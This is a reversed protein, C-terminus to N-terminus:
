LLYARYQTYREVTEFRKEEDKKPFFAAEPTKELMLVSAPSAIISAVTQEPLFGNSPSLEKSFSPCRAQCCCSQAKAEPCSACVFLPLVLSIVLFLILFIGLRM